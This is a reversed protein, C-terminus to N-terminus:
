PTRPNDTFSDDLLPDACVDTEDASERSLPLFSTVKAFEDVVSVFEYMRVILGSYTARKALPVGYALTILSGSFLGSSGVGAIARGLIFASSNPAVGCILLGVEFIGLIILYTGKIPFVSCLKVFFLQFAYLVRRQLEAVFLSQVVSVWPICVTCLLCTSFYWEIDIMLHFSDAISLVATAM